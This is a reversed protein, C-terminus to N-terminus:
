DGEGLAGLRGLVLIILVLNSVLQSLLPEEAEEALIPLMVIAGELQIFLEVKM